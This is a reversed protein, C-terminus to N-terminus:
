KEWGKNRCFELLNALRVLKIAEQKLGIHIRQNYERKPPRLSLEALKYVM